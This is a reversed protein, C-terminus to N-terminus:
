TSTIFFLSVDRKTLTNAERMRDRARNYAQSRWCILRRWLSQQTWTKARGKEGDRTIETKGEKRTKKRRKLNNRM